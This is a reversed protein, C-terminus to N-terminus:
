SKPYLSAHWICFGVLAIGAGIHVAKATKNNMFLASGSALLLTTTMGIKAMERKIEMSNKKHKVIPQKIEKAQM